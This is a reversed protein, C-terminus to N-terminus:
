TRPVPILLGGWAPVPSNLVVDFVSSKNRRGNLTGLQGLQDGAPAFVYSSHVYKHNTNRAPALLSFMAATYVPAHNRLNQLIQNRANQLDNIGGQGSSAKTCKKDSRDTRLAAFM